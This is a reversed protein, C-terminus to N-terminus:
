DLSSQAFASCFDCHVRRWSFNMLFIIRANIWTKWGTFLVFHEQSSFGEVAAFAILARCVFWIRDMTFGLRSKEKIAPFVELANFLRDKWSWRWMPILWYHIDSHINEMMIQYFFKAWCIASRECFKWCLKWKCNRRFSCFLLFTNWLIGRM